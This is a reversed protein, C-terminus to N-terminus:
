LNRVLVMTFRAISGSAFILFQNNIESEIFDEWADNWDVDEIALDLGDLTIQMINGRVLMLTVIAEDPIDAFLANDLIATGVDDVMDVHIVSTGQSPERLMLGDWMTVVIMKQEPVSNANWEITMEDFYCYPIRNCDDFQPAYIVISDATHWTISYYQNFVNETISVSDLQCIRRKLSVCKQKDEIRALDKLEYSLKYKRSSNNIFFTNDEWNRM